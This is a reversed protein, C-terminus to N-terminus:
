RDSRNMWWESAAGSPRFIGIDSGTSDFDFATRRPSEYGGWSPNNENVFNNTLPFFGTGNGYMVYIETDGNGPDAAFAVRGDPSASPEHDYLINNTLNEQNSGDLNM